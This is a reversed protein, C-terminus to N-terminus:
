CNQELIRGYTDIVVWAQSSTVPRLYNGMPLKTMTTGTDYYVEDFPSFTGTGFTLINLLPATGNCVTDLDFDVYCLTTFAPEVGPYPTNPELSYNPPPPIIKYYPTREKILSVETLKKNVLDAENIKEITYNADKIFIKDNLKTEYVFIPSFFIRATM